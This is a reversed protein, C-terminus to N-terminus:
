PKKKRLARLIDIEDLLEALEDDTAEDTSGKRAALAVALGEDRRAEEIRAKMEERSLRPGRPIAAVRERARALKEHAELQWQLRRRREILDEALNAGRNGIARADGGDAEIARAVEEDSMVAVEAEADDFAMQEAADVLEEPSM